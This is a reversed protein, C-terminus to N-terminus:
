IITGSDRKRERREKKKKGPSHFRSLTISSVRWEHLIKWEEVWVNGIRGHLILGGHPQSFWYFILLFDIFPFLYFYFGNFARRRLTVGATLIAPFITVSIQVVSRERTTRERNQSLIPPFQQDNITLTIMSFLVAPKEM